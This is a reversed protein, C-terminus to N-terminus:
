VTIDTTEETIEEKVEVPFAHIKELYGRIHATRKAASEYKYIATHNHIEIGGGVSKKSVEDVFNDITVGSLIVHKGDSTVTMEAHTRVERAISSSPLSFLLNDRLYEKSRFLYGPTLKNGTPIRATELLELSSGPTADTLTQLMKYIGTRNLHELRDQATIPDTAERRPNGRILEAM